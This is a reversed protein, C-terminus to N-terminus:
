MQAFIVIETQKRTRWFFFFFHQFDFRRVAGTAFRPGLVMKHVVKLYPLLWQALGASFNGCCGGLLYCTQTTVHDLSLIVQHIFRKRYANISWNNLHMHLTAVLNWKRWYYAATSATPLLSMLNHLHTPRQLILVWAHDGTLPGGGCSNLWKNRKGDDVNDSFAFTREYRKSNNLISVTLFKQWM